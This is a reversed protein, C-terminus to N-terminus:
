KCSCQTQSHKLQRRLEKIEENKEELKNTLAEVRFYLYRETETVKM